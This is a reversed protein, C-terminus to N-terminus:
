VGVPLRNKNRVSRNGRVCVFLSYACLFAHLRKTSRLNQHLVRRECIASQFQVQHGSLACCSEGPYIIEHTSVRIRVFRLPVYPAPSTSRLPPMMPAASRHSAATPPSPNFPVPGHGHQMPLMSVLQPPPSLGGNALPATRSSAQLGDLSQIINATVPQSFASACKRRLVTEVVESTTPREVAIRVTTGEFGHV